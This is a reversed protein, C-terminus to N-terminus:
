GEVEELQQQLQRTVEMLALAERQLRSHEERLNNYATALKELNSQQTEQLQQLLTKQAAAAALMECTSCAARPKQHICEVEVVTDEM